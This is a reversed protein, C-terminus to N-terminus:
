ERRAARSINCYGVPADPAPRSPETDTETPAPPTDSDPPAAAPTLRLTGSDCTGVTRTTQPGPRITGTRTVPSLMVSFSYSASSFGVCASTRMSRDTSVGSSTSARVPGRFSTALTAYLYECPRRCASATALRAPGASDIMPRNGTYNKEGSGRSSLLNTINTGPVRWASISGYVTLPGSPRSTATVRM